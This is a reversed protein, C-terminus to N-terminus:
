FGCSLKLSITCSAEYAISVKCIPVYILSSDDAFLFISIMVLIKRKM